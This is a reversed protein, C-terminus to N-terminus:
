LNNPYEIKKPGQKTQITLTNIDSKKLAAIGTTISECFDFSEKIKKGNIHTVVDGPEFVGKYKNWVTSVVLKGNDVKLLIDRMPKKMDIEKEYSEFYLVGRPFDITVRGYELIKTGILTHPPTATEAILNKFKASGFVMTNFLIRKSDKRDSKGSLGFSGESSTQDVVNLSSDNFDASKLNLFGGCGTDFLMVYEKDDINVGILPVCGNKVFRHIFRPSVKPATEATEITITKTKHDITLIVGALLDNGILGSVGFCKFPNEGNPLVAPFGTFGIENGMTTITELITRRYYTKNSNSDVVQLSDLVSLNLEELLENSILTKGGTDFILRQPSGNIRMEIVM